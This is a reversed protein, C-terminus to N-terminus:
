AWETCENRIKREPPPVSDEGLLQHVLDDVHHGTGGAVHDSLLAGFVTRLVRWAAAAFCPGLEICKLIMVFIKVFFIVFGM